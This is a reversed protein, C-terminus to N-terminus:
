VNQPLQQFHTSNPWEAFSLWLLEVMAVWSWVKQTGYNSHGKYMSARLIFVEYLGVLDFSVKKLPLVPRAFWNISHNGISYCKSMGWDSGAFGLLLFSTCEVLLKTAVPVCTIYLVSGHLSHYGPTTVLTKCSLLDYM